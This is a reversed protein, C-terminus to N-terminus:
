IARIPLSSSSCRRPVHFSQVPYQVSSRRPLKISDNISLPPSQMPSQRSHDFNKALYQVYILWSGFEADSVFLQYQISQLFECEMRSIIEAPVNAIKGWSHATYCNDATVKQASMLSVLFLYAEAGFSVPQTGVEKLRQVFKLALVVVSMSIANSTTKLVRYIFLTAKELMQQTAVRRQADEQQHPLRELIVFVCTAVFRSFQLCKQTPDM